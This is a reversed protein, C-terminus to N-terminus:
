QRLISISIEKAERNEYFLVKKAWQVEDRADKVGESTRSVEVGAAQVQQKCGGIKRGVLTEHNNNNNCTM